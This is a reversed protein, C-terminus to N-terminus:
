VENRYHATEDPEKKHNVICDVAEKASQICDKEYYFGWCSDVPDEPDEPSYINFGYGDGEIYKNYIELESQISEEARKHREMVDFHRFEEIYKAKPIFIFGIQGSDWPCSFPSTSLSRGSHNYMFVLYIIMPKEERQIERELEDWSDYHDQKYDSEDGLSYKRHFCIMTTRPEEDRPNMLDSDPVIKITYDKYKLEEIVYTM